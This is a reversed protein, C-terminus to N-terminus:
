RTYHESPASHPGDVRIIPLGDPGNLKGISVEGRHDRKSFYFPFKGAAGGTNILELYEKFKRTWSKAVPDDLGHM